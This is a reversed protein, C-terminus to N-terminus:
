QHKGNALDSSLLLKLASLLYPLSGRTVALSLMLEVCRKRIAQRVGGDDFSVCVYTFAFVILLHLQVDVTGHRCLAAFRV